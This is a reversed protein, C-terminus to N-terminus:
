MDGYKQMDPDTLHFGQSRYETQMADMYEKLEPGSMESTVGLVGSALFKCEQEYDMGASARRWVFAFIEDRMRITLGWKRHCEGKVMHADVDGRQKAIEDYWMHITRNQRISRTDGDKQSVTMPMPQLSLFKVWGELDGQTKIVRSPM